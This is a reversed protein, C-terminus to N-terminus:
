VKKSMDAKMIYKVLTFVVLAIIIFNIMAGVFDGAMFNIPGIPLIATQWNEGPLIVGIVPMVIDKVLSTVLATAATGIIFAVALGIVQNKKLFEVFEEEFGRADKGLKMVDERLEEEADKTNKVDM